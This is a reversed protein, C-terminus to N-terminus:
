CMVDFWAEALLALFFMEAVGTMQSCSFLGTNRIWSMKTHIRIRPDM